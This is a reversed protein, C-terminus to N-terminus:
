GRGRGRGRARGGAAHGGRGRGIMDAAHRGRGRGRGVVAAPGGAAPPAGPVAAAAAAGAAPAGGAAAAAFAGPDLALVLESKNFNYLRSWDSERGEFKLRSLQRALVCKTWEDKTTEQMFTEEVDLPDALSFHWPTDVGDPLRETQRFCIPSHELFAAEYAVEVERPTLGIGLPLDLGMKRILEALTYSELNLSGIGSLLLPRAIDPGIDEAIEFMAVSINRSEAEGASREERGAYTKSEAVFFMSTGLEEFKYMRLPTLLSRLYVGRAETWGGGRKKPKLGAERRMLDVDELTMNFRDRYSNMPLRDSCHRGQAIADLRMQGRVSTLYPRFEDAPPLSGNCNIHTSIKLMGNIAM